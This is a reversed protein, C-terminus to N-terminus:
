TEAGVLLPQVVLDHGFTTIKDLPIDAIVEDGSWGDPWTNLSWLERIRAEEDANVLDVGARKQIDLVRELGYARGEFTLPGMRQGNKAYSGDKKKEPTGKRLRWKPKKLEKFLPKIELLPSLHRWTETKVLNELATDRSALNCGICGTRAEDDGYVAAIEGLGEYGHGLQDFGAYKMWSDSNAFYLWDWVFCLRWHLLPALTDAVADPPSVQMWGQGCEGSDKGCSIAIRQDRAASEGQRVGTLMLFKEGTEARKTELAEAMPEIKLKVTCWRFRNSPPPVGRGLMYVYFRNDMEPLVTFANFGQGRLVDMFKQAVSWLPTLEQRTDGYLITLSEPSPVQGTHIAWAVFSVTASSDKGGSYAIAWHRYNAGYARLSAISTEIAEKFTMRQDDFLSIQRPKM